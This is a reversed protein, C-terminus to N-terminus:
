PARARTRAAPHPDGDDVGADADRLLREGLEAPRELLDFALEGLAVLARPEPERDGFRQGLQMAARM